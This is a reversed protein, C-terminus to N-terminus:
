NDWYIKLRHTRFYNSLYDQAQPLHEETVEKGLQLQVTGSRRNYSFESAFSGILVRFELDAPHYGLFLPSAEFLTRRFDNEDTV